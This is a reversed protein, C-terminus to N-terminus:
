YEDASRAMAASLAIILAAAVMLGFAMPLGSLEAAFGIMPPGALFGAYGLTTVAAIGRGPADPELRGGGAFLIPALNGIGIGAIAFSAIALWPWPLAAAGALGAASFLASWRVLPVSGLKVRLYDGTFRSVAMGTSFMAYGLAAQSADLAFRGRLMIGSWDLVSGEAMLALFCLLGLGITAPTPWAFHTGSLGKDVGNTLFFPLAALLMVLCLASSFLLHVPPSVLGLAAAGILAGATGGVSFGGHFFSMSARALAREVAIGHANMAVDMSGVTTGYLFGLVLFFSLAPVMPPGLLMLCFAIGTVGTVRASGYRNILVGAVPMSAIAGAAIALLAVGFIGPGVGLKEKVLPIHPVWSGWVFGHLFFVVAVAWRARAAPVSAM